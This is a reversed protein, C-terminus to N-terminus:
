DVHDLIGLRVRPVPEEARGRGGLARAGEVVLLWERLLQRKTEARVSPTETWHLNSFGASSGLSLVQFSGLAKQYALANCYGLIKEEGEIFCLQTLKAKESMAATKTASRLAKGGNQGKSLKGTLRVGPRFLRASVGGGVAVM